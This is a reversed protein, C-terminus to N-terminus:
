RAQIATGVIRRIALLDDKSRQAGAVPLKPYAVTVAGVGHLQGGELVALHCRGMPTRISPLNYETGTAFALELGIDDCGRASFRSFQLSEACSHTPKCPRGIAFPNIILYVRVSLDPPGTQVAAPRHLQRM